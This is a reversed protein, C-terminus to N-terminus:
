VAVRPATQDLDEINVITCTDSDKSPMQNGVELTTTTSKEFKLSIVAINFKKLTRFNLVKVTSGYISLVPHRIKFM